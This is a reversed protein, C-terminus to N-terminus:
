TMEDFYWKQFRSGLRVLNSWFDQNPWTRVQGPPGMHAWLPGYPGMHAGVRIHIAQLLGNRLRSSLAGLIGGAARRGGQDFNHLFFDPIKNPIKQIKPWINLNKTLIIQNQIDGAFINCFWIYIEDFYLKQVRFTCFQVLVRVETMDPGERSEM